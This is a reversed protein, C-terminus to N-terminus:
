KKTENVKCSYGLKELVSAVYRIDDDLYTVWASRDYGVEISLWRGVCDRNIYVDYYRELAEIEEDTKPRYWFYDHDEYYEGGGFPMFGNLEAVTEIGDISHSALRREHDKCERESDFREGDSAVYYTVDREVLEKKKEVIM